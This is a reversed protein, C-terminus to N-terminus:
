CGPRRRGDKGAEMVARIAEVVLGPEDATIVHRSRRAIVHCARTSLTALDRQLEQHIEEGPGSSIGATLVVLPIDLTRRSAAVDKASQSWQMLEGYSAQYRSTRHVTAQVYRRVSPDANDPDPGLTEGRLRLLGVSASMVALRLAFPVSEDLGAAAYRERQKEHSADVLVLGAVREPYESAVIRTNLGGFSAGVLIVPGQVGGREILLALERAIQGSSRPAPSSDSYGLGARDYACVQTFRAVDPQVRPWTFAGGGMGSDLIVTPKGAGMCWIHLRHGGIDVLRGPPPMTALDRRTAIWQYAAGIVALLVLAGILGALVRATRRWM